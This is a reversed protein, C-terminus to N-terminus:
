PDGGPAAGPPTPPDPERTLKGRSKPTTIGGDSALGGGSPRNLRGAASITRTTAPSSTIPMLCDASVLVSSTAILVTTRMTNTTAPADYTLRAFRVGNM